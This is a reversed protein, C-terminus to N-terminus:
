STVTMTRIGTATSITFNAQIRPAKAQQVDVNLGLLKLTTALQAANPTAIFFSELHLGQPATTSPHPSNPSWQIFFPLLGDPDAVDLTKWKLLHGDQTKRSGPRIGQTQLKAKRVRQEVAEIDNTHAAWGILKPQELQKLETVMDSPAAQAPDPAIIELYHLDGFSILANQTGRGPHVGGFKARVGTAKEVFAIGQELDSCGLLIHDLLPPVVTAANANSFRSIMVAAITSFLFNRRSIM